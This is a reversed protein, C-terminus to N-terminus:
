GNKTHKMCHVIYVYCVTVVHHNVDLRLASVIYMHCNISNIAVIFQLHDAICCVTGVPCNADCRFAPECYMVCSCSVACCMQWVQNRDANGNRM